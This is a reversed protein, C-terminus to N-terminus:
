LGLRVNLENNEDLQLIASGMPTPAHLAFKAYEANDLFSGVRIKWIKKESRAGAANVVYRRVPEAYLKHTHALIVADLGEYTDLVKKFDGDYSGGAGHAVFIKKGHWTFVSSAGKYPVGLQDAACKLLQISTTDETRKEHNGKIIGIMQNKLPAFRKVFKDLQEQPTLYNNWTSGVHKTGCFGGNDLSDGCICIEVSAKNRLAWNIYKQLEAEDQSKEGEHICGACWLSRVM